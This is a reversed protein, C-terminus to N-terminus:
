RALDTAEPKGINGFLGHLFGADAVSPTTVRSTLTVVQGDELGYRRINSVQGTETYDIVVVQREVEYPEFLGNTRQRSSVYYWSDNGQIGLAPPQGIKEAVTERTDTGVVVTALDAEPPVYGHNGVIPSCAMAWAMSGIVVWTRLRFHRRDASYAM